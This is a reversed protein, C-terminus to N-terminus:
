LIRINRSLSVYIRRRLIEELSMKGITANPLSIHLENADRRRARILNVSM